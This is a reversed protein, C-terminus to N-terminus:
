LSFRRCGTQNIFDGFVFSASNYNPSACALVTVCVLVFGCISWAFAGKYVLPLSSNLLANVAFSFLTLGIYILFQHWRQPEYGQGKHASRRLLAGQRTRGVAHLLSIIGM